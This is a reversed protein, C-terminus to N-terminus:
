LTEAMFSLVGPEDDVVLVSQGPQQPPALPASVPAEPQRPPASTRPLFLRVTAGRGPTSDIEVWGGSQRAAGYVQALGLGTGKGAPKTTFFPELARDAVERPMGMG